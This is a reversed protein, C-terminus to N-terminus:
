WSRVPNSRHVVGLPKLCARPQEHAGGGVAQSLCPTARLLNSVPSCTLISSADSATPPQLQQGGLSVLGIYKVGYWVYPARSLDLTSADSATLPSYNSIEMWTRTRSWDWTGTDTATSTATAGAGTVAVAVLAALALRALALAPPGLPASM